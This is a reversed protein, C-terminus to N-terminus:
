CSARMTREWSWISEGSEMISVSRKLKLVSKSASATEYRERRDNRGLRKRRKKHYQRLHKYLTGGRRHDAYIHQYIRKPSVTEEGSRRMVGTVQEPSLDDKFYAEVRAKMVPTFKVRRRSAFRRDEAKSQAQKHGRKAAKGSLRVASRAKM